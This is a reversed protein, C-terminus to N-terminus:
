IKITIHFYMNIVHFKIYKILINFAIIFVIIHLHTTVIYLLKIKNKICFSFVSLNIYIYYFYIEILFFYLHGQFRQFAEVEPAVMHVVHHM